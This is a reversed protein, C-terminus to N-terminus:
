EIFLPDHADVHRVAVLNKDGLHRHLVAFCHNVAVEDGVARRSFLVHFSTL